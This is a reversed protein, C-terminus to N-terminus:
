VNRDMKTATITNANDKWRVKKTSLLTAENAMGRTVETVVDYTDKIKKPDQIKPRDKSRRITPPLGVAVNM